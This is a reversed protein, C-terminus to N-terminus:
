KTRTNHQDKGHERKPSFKSLPVNVLTCKRAQVGGGDAEDDSRHEVDDEFYSRETWEGVSAHADTEDTCKARVDDFERNSSPRERLRWHNDDETTKEAQERVPAVHTLLAGLECTARSCEDM